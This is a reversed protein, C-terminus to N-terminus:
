HAAQLPMLTGTRQLNMADDNETRSDPPAVFQNQSADIITSKPELTEKRRRLAEENEMKMQIAKQSVEPLESKKGKFGIREMFTDGTIGKQRRAEEVELKRKARREDRRAKWEADRKAQAEAKEANRRLRDAGMGAADRAKGILRYKARDFIGMNEVMVDDVAKQTAEFEDMGEAIYKKKLEDVKRAREKQKEKFDEWENKFFQIPDTFLLGFRDKLSEILPTVLGDVIAQVITDMLDAFGDAIQDTIKQITEPSIEGMTLGSLVESFFEKGTMKGSVFDAWDQKFDSWWVGIAKEINELANQFFEKSVLGFTLSSMMKAVGSNFKELTSADEGAEEWGRLFEVGAALAVAPLFAKKALGKVGALLGSLSKGAFFGPLLGSMFSSSSADSKAM